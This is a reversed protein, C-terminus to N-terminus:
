LDSAAFLAKPIFDHSKSSPVKCLREVLRPGIINYFTSERYMGLQKSTVRGQETPRTRKLVFKVLKLESGGFTLTLISMEGSLGSHGSWSSVASSSITSSEQMIGRSILASGLCEGVLVPDDWGSM